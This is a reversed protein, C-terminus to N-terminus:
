QGRLAVAPDVRAARRAPMWSALVTTAALVAAVGVIVAPDVRGFGEMASGILRTVAIVGPVGLGIGVAALILGQRTVMGRVQGSRAGLALRVGIEHTRQAVAYALVGYTGLAALLLALTGFAALISTIVRMGVFFQAIFEDLPQVESVVLGPDYATLAERAPNALTEPAADTLLTVAVSPPPEQALPLYLVPQSTGQFFAAHRRDPVVGVIRRSEGRVTVSRGIPDAEAWHRRALSQNVLAVPAGEPGDTAAFGRGAAV